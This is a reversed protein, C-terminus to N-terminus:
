FGDLWDPLHGIDPLVADALPALQEAPAVGTLVAVTAMGAVRGAILDHTSDGVMVVQETAIKMAGAFALCMGPAPKAGHGSDSGAIFDFHGTIGAGDLHAKAPAHADNTAVGLSLGRERLGTMLPVLPAAEIMQAQAAASNIQNAIERATLHPFEPAVLGVIQDPTGAIVPSELDFRAAELDFGIRAALRTARVMDGESIEVLFDRAWAGWSLHFDFLTGDKDFLIARFTM